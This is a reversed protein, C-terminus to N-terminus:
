RLDVSGVQRDPQRRAHAGDETRGRRGQRRASVGVRGRQRARRCVADRLPGARRRHSRGGGPAPGRAPHVERHRHTRVVRHSRAARCVLAGRRARKARPLVADRLVRDDVESAEVFNVIDITRTKELAAAEFDEKTLVAFRGKAYEFGKVLDKWAVPHGDRICVRDLRVPSRDAAHLMRFRPRHDRVAKHVQVPINVLGFSISGKWIARAM